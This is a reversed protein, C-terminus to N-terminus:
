KTKAKEKKEAIKLIIQWEEPKVPQVSLRSGKRLLEMNELGAHSRLEDLTITDPFVRVLKIDVMEWIPNEPTSKPDFHHDKPDLATHDPYAKRSVEAIGVIGTPEASSHYYFVQDGKEMERMFNRAQYNRVGDWCTTKKPARKLDDISFSGPESKMLWYKM